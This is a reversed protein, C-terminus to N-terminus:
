DDCFSEKDVCYRQLVIHFKILSQNNIQKNIDIFQEDLHLARKLQNELISLYFDKKRSAKSDM